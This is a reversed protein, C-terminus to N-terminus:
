RKGLTFGDFRLKEVAVKMAEVPAGHVYGAHPSHDAHGCLRRQISDTVDANELGTTFNHRFSHWTKRREAIGLNKLITRNFTKPIFRPFYHNMRVKGAIEALRKAEMGERYWNPFLHTEAKARLKEIRKELGFGLLVSHVPVFRQSELNKTEEEIAFVLIGREHRVSDLRIQALESGRMGSFLSILEAWRQEDLQKGKAYRERSFIKAIDGPSFPLKRRRKDKVAEVKVGRAPNDPIIDNRWCWNLMAHTKSLYKDNVTRTDLPPYPVARARNAKIAERMTLGPFRKRFNSPCEALANKFGIVDQRTIQYVPKAEGLYEELLQATAACEFNTHPSAKREKVYMPVIESLPKTSDPGVIRSALPDNKPVVPEPKATLLPHTPQGTFDGEDREFTRALSELEAVALARIAERWEPTGFAAALNGNGQYKRAIWGIAEQMVMNAASGSVVAKLRAVYSEDVFGHSFRHDQNRCEDDFRMQDGYHAEALQRPSMVHGRRPPASLNRLARAEARAAEITAYFQSVVAPLKRKAGADSAASISAWLERKGVISRLAMPVAMRAYYGGRKGAYLHREVKTGYGQSRAAPREM